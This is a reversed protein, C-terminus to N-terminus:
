VLFVLNKYKDIRNSVIIINTFMCIYWFFLLLISSSSRYFRIQKQIVINLWEVFPNLAKMYSKFMYEVHNCNLKQPLFRHFDKSYLVIFFSGDQIKHHVASNVKNM